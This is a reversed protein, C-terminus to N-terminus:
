LGNKEAKINFDILKDFDEQWEPDTIKFPLVSQEECYSLYSEYGDTYRSFVLDAEKLSVRSM